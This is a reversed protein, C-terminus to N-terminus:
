FPLGDPLDDMFPPDQIGIKDNPSWNASENNASGQGPNVAGASEIKWAKLDTYWRGNYERSEVDFFINLMNGPQLANENIKDGWASFLVKKPYQGETEVLFEQKRWTGNKGQGTQLPFLQVLKAKLEMLLDQKFDNDTAFNVM